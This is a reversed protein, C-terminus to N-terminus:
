ARAQQMRLVQDAMEDAKDLMRRLEATKARVEEPRFDEHNMGAIYVVAGGGDSLACMGVDLLVEGTKSLVTHEHNFHDYHGPTTDTCIGPWIPCITGTLM